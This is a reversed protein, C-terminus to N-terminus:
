GSNYGWGRQSHIKNRHRRLGGQRSIIEMENMVQANRLSGENDPIQKGAHSQSSTNSESSFLLPIEGPKSNLGIELKM